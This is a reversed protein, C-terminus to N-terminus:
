AHGGCGAAQEQPPTLRAHCAPTSSPPTLSRLGHLPSVSVRTHWARMRAARTAFGASGRRRVCMARLWHVIHVSEEHLESNEDIAALGAFQAQYLEDKTVNLVLMVLQDFVAKLVDSRAKILDDEVITIGMEGLSVVIEEATLIPFTMTPAVPPPRLLGTAYKGGVSRRGSM